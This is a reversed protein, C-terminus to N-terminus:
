RSIAGSVAVNLKANASDENGSGTSFGKVNPNYKKIIDPLFTQSTIIVGTREHVSNPKNPSTM